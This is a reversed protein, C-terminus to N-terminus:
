PWVVLAASRVEVVVEATDRTFLEPADFRVRAIRSAGLHLTDGSLDLGASRLDDLDFRHSGADSLLCTLEDGAPESGIFSSLRVLLPAGRGDPRWELLLSGRDTSPTAQLAVAEPIPARVRFGALEDDGAGDVTVTLASPSPEGRPWARRPLAESVYDYEVGSMYPLLDPVLSLPVEVSADGIQVALNGADILVLERRGTPTGTTINTTINATDRTGPEDSALWLQESALCQGPRLRDIALQPLDTRARVSAEDLGRYQVFRALVELAPDDSPAEGPPQLVIQIRALTHTPLPEGLSNTNSGDDVVASCAAVAALCALTGAAVMAQM